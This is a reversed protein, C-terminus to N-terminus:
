EKSCVLRTSDFGSPPGQVACPLPVAMKVEERRRRHFISCFFSYTGAMRKATMEWKGSNEMPLAHRNPLGITRPRGIRALGTAWAMASKLWRNTQTFIKAAAQFHHEPHLGHRGDATSIMCGLWKHARNRELIIVSVENPFVFKAPHQGPSKKEKAANLVLDIQRLADM